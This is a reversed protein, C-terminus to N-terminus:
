DKSLKCMAHIILLKSSKQYKTAMTILKAVMSVRSVKSLCSLFSTLSGCLEEMIVVLILCLHYALQQNLDAMQRQFHKVEM